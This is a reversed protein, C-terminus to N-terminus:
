NIKTNLKMNKTNRKVKELKKLKCLEETLQIAIKVQSTKYNKEFINEFFQPSNLLQSYEM